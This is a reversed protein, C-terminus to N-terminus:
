RTAYCFVGSCNLLPAKRYLITLIQHFVARYNRVPISYWAPM